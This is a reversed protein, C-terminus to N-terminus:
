TGVKKIKNSLNLLRVMLSDYEDATQQKSNINKLSKICKDIENSIEEREITTVEPYDILNAISTFKEKIVSYDDNYREICDVLSGYFPKFSSSKTDFNVYGGNIRTGTLGSIICKKGKTALLNTTTPLISFGLEKTVISAMKDFNSVYHCIAKFPVHHGKSDGVVLSSYIFDKYKDPVFEKKIVEFPVEKYLKITTYEPIWSSIFTDYNKKDGKTDWLVDGDEDIEANKLLNVRALEYGEKTLSTVNGSDDTHSYSTISIDTIVQYIVEPIKFLSIPSDHTISVEQENVLLSLKGVTTKRLMFLDNYNFDIVQLPYYTVEEM